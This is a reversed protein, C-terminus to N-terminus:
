LFVVSEEEKKGRKKKKGPRRKDSFRECEASSCQQQRTALLFIVYLPFLFSLLVFIDRMGLEIVFVALSGWPAGPLTGSQCLAWMHWRSLKLGEEAEWGASGGAALTSSKQQFRQPM